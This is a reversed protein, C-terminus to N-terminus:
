AAAEVLGRFVGRGDDSGLLLNMARDPHPMLGLVNGAPNAIGAIARASGNPNAEPTVAGTEDVYRFVVRGEDELRDLTAEDAVYNGEGHAVPYRVLQGPRFQRTYPTAVSDVRLWQERCVFTLRDNRMLAGPLLGAETLIQFGNCIGLVPGGSEAFRIVREMIPSFRAIAGARLYDGFSFGGALVIGRVGALDTEKHWLWVPSAGDVAGVAAFVDQDCNTGPFRVVGIPVGSM